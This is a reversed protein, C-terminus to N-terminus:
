YGLQLDLGNSFLANAPRGNELLLAQTFVDAGALSASVPVQVQQYVPGGAGWPTPPSVYGITTANLFLEGASGAAGGFPSAVPAPYGSAPAGALVWFALGASAGLAGSPDDIAVLLPGGLRPPMAVTLSVPARAPTSPYRTTTRWWSPHDIRAAFPATQGVRLQGGAAFLQCPGIADIGSAGALDLGSFVHSLAWSSGDWHWVENGISWIDNAAIVKGAIGDPAGPLLTWSSGDWRSVFRQTQLTPHTAYGFVWVDNPTLAEVDYLQLFWGSLNPVACPRHTWGAGDYHFLVPVMSGPLNGPVGAGGAAWVDNRSTAAVAHFYQHGVGTVIPVTSRQLSSGNWHLLLGPRTTASGPSVVDLWDGVFWVDNGAIAVVDTAKAGTVGVTATTAPLPLGSPVSWASGNWHMAFVQQGVWGGNVVTQWSGCAWVDNSAVGDVGHLILNEQGPAPAPDPSPIEVWTTGNWHATFTRNAQGGGGNLRKSGVAWADDVAFAKVDRFQSLSANAAPTTPLESWSVCPVAPTGHYGSRLGWLAFTMDAYLPVQIAPNVMPTQWATGANRDRVKTFSLRPANVASAWVSWYGGGQFHLQMSVFHRGSAVFPVPLYADVTAPVLPDFQLSPTGAALTRAYLLAGPDGNSWSYFRITAGTVTPAACQWCGYGSFVVRTITGTVEFDDAAELDQVPSTTTLSDLTTYNSWPNSWLTQVQASAIGCFTAAVLLLRNM